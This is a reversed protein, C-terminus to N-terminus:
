SSRKESARDLRAALTEIRDGIHDELERLDSRNPLGSIIERLQFYESNMQAITESISVFVVKHADIDARQQAIALSMRELRTMLRWIFAGVSLILTALGTVAWQLFGWWPPESVDPLSM